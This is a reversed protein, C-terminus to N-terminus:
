FNLVVKKLKGIIRMNKSGDLIIPSYRYNESQLIVKDDTKFVRKLVADDEIQVAAIEGNEVDEQQRILLLDGDMIRANIMSDGKARLYFYKGGNLWDRPTPEYGEINEYAVMGNGCSVKGVIPLDVIDENKVRYIGPEEYPMLLDSKNIKYHDSIREIAGSRPMKKGNEWDSITSQAVGLAAALDVANENHIKRYRKINEAFIQKIDKEEM